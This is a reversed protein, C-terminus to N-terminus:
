SLGKEMWPGQYSNPEKVKLVLIRGNQFMKKYNTPSKSQLLENPTLTLGM